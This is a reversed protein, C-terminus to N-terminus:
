LLALINGLLGFSSYRIENISPINGNKDLWIYVTRSSYVALPALVPRDVPPGVLTYPQINSTWATFCLALVKM